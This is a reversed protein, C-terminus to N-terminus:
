SSIPEDPLVLGTVTALKVGFVLMDPIRTHFLDKRQSPSTAAEDLLWCLKALHLTYHRLQEFKSLGAVDAHYILDHRAQAKQLDLWTKAQSVASGGDFINALGLPHRMEMRGIRTAYAQIPDIGHHDLLRLALERLDSGAAHLASQDVGENHEARDCHRALVGTIKLLGRVATHLVVDQKDVSFRRV